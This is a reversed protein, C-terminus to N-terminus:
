FSYTNMQQWRWSIVSLTKLNGSIKLGQRFSNEAIMQKIDKDTAAVIRVDIYRVSTEDLPKIENKQLVRLLSALISMPMNGTEDLFVMGGDAAEFLETNDRTAGTFAGKKYGFLESELLTEPITNCNQGLFPNDKRLSSRHIREAVLEKGM